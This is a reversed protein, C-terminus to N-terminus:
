VPETATGAVAALHEAVIEAFAAADTATANEVGLAEAVDAATECAGYKEADAEKLAALLAAGNVGNGWTINSLIPGSTAGDTPDDSSVDGAFIQYAEYTHGAKDNQIIISYEGAALVPVSLIAAMALSLLSLLIAALKKMKEM